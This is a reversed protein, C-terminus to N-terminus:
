LYTKLEAGNDRRRQRIKLINETFRTLGFLLAAPILIFLIELNMNDGKM